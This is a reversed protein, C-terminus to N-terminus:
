ASRRRREDEVVYEFASRFAEPTMRVAAAITALSEPREFDEPELRTMYRRAISYGTSRVDVPRVRTRATRADLIEDFPIPTFKGHVMAALAGTGGELLFGAASCGLDRTYELDFGIPDACRLEFGVDKERFASKIGLPALRARVARSLLGALDIKFL